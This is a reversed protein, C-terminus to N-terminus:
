STLSHLPKVVLRMIFVPAGSGPSRIFVLQKQAGKPKNIKGSNKATLFFQRLIAGQM